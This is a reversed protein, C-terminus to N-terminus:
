RHSRAITKTLKNTPTETATMPVKSEMQVMALNIFTYYFKLHKNIKANLNKNIKKNMIQIKMKMNMNM